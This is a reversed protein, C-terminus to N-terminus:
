GRDRGGGGLLEGVAEDVGADLDDEVVGLREQVDWRLHRDVGRAGGHVEEVREVKVQGLLGEVSTISRTAAYSVKSAELSRVTPISSSYAIRSGSVSSSVGPKSRSRSAPVLSGTSASAIEPSSM